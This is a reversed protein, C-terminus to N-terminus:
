LSPTTGGFNANAYQSTENSPQFSKQKAQPAEFNTDDTKELKGDHTLSSVFPPPRKRNMLM